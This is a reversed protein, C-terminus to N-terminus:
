ELLLVPLSRCCCVLESTLLTQFSKVTLVVVLSGPKQVVFGYGFTFTAAVHGGAIEEVHRECLRDIVDSETAFPLRYGHGTKLRRLPGAIDLLTRRVRVVDVDEHPFSEADLYDHTIVPVGTARVQRYVWSEEPNGFTETYVAAPM